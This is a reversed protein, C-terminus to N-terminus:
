FAPHVVIVVAALRDDGNLGRLGDGFQVLLVKEGPQRPTVAADNAASAEAQRTPLALADGQGM